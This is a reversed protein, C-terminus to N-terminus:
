TNKNQLHLLYHSFMNQLRVIKIMNLDTTKFTGYNRCVPDLRESRKCCTRHIVNFNNKNLNM